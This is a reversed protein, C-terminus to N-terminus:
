IFIPSVSGGNGASMAFQVIGASSSILWDGAVGLKASVDGVGAGTAVADGSVLVAGANLAAGIAGVTGGSNGINCTKCRSQCAATVSFTLTLPNIPRVWGRRTAEYYPSRPAVRTVYDILRM